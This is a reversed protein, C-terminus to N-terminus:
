QIPGKKTVTLTQTLNLNGDDGYLKDMNKETLDGDSEEVSYSETDFLLLDNNDSDVYIEDDQDFVDFNFDFDFDHNKSVYNVPPKYIKKNCDTYVSQSSEYYINLNHIKKSRKHKLFSKIMMERNATM